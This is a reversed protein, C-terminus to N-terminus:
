RGRDVCTTKHLYLKQEGLNIGKFSRPFIGNKEKISDSQEERWIHGSNKCVYHSKPFVRVM